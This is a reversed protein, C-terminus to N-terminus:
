DDGDHDFIRGVVLRLDREDVVYPLIKSKIIRLLENAFSTSMPIGSEVFVYTLNVVGLLQIMASQFVSLEEASFITTIDIQKRYAERSRDVIQALSAISNETHEDFRNSLTIPELNPTM